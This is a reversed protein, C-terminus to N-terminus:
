QVGTKQSQQYDLQVSNGPPLHDIFTRKVDYLIRRRSQPVCSIGNMYNPLTAALPRWDDM